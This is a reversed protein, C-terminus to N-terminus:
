SFYINVKLWLMVVEGFCVQVAGYKEMFIRDKHGDPENHYWKTDGSLIVMVWVPIFVHNEHLLVSGDFDMKALYNRQVSGACM